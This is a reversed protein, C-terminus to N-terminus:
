GDTRGDRKTVLQCYNVIVIFFVCSVFWVQQKTVSFHVKNMGWTWLFLMHVCVYVCVPAETAEHSEFHNLVGGLDHDVGLHGM